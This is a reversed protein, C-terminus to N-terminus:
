EGHNESNFNIFNSSMMASCPNQNERNMNGNLPAINTVIRNNSEMSLNESNWGGLFGFLPNRSNLWCAQPEAVVKNYDFISHNSSPIATINGMYAHDTTRVTNDLHLHKLFHYTNSFELPYCSSEKMNHDDLNESFGQQSQCFDVGPDEQSSQKTKGANKIMIRDRTKEGAKGELESTLLISEMPKRSRDDDTQDGQPNLNAIETMSETECASFPSGIDNNEKSVTQAAADSQLTETVEQIAEHSKSFLWEITKSAKDFGLMDNLDFFKRATHVSLRMRRDRLGQATHIKSQREKKGGSRKKRVCKLKSALPEVRTTNTLKLPNNMTTIATTTTTTTTRCGNTSPQHDNHLNPLITTTNM